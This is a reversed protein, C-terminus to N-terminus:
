MSWTTNDSVAFRGHNDILKRSLSLLDVKINNEAIYNEVACYLNNTGTFARRIPNEDEGCLEGMVVGLLIFEEPTFTVTVNPLTPKDYTIQM